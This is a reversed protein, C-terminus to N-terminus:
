QAERSSDANADESGRWQQWNRLLEAVGQLLLLAPLVLIATKLLYVYPLGSSEPSAERLRWSLSVYDWSLWIIALMSPILFVATGTLDILARRRASQRSFFIDVRVHGQVKLTYGAGLAFVAANMYMISEQMAISGYQFLYRLVVISVMVLVMVMAIWAITRGLRESIFDIIAILRQV